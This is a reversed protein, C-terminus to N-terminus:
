GGGARSRKAAEVTAKIQAAKAEDMEVEGTKYDYTPVEASRDWTAMTTALALRRQKLSIGVEDPLSLSGTPCGEVCAPARGERLRDLCMDCKTAVGKAEDWVIMGFPCAMICMKCGICLTGKMAVAGTSQDRYINGTPCAALCAANGCHMCHLSVAPGLSGDVVCLAKGHDPHAELCAVECAYCKDCKSADISVLNRVGAEAQEAMLRQLLDEARRPNVIGCMCPKALEAAAEEVTRAGRAVDKAMRIALNKSMMAHGCMTTIEVLTQGPLLGTDGWTELSYTVTHRHIGAGQCAEDVKDFLGSVIVSVGLDEEALAKVFANIKEQTDFVALTHSTNFAGALIQEPTATFLNGVSQMGLNVCGNALALEAFRRMAPGCTTNNIGKASRMTVVFDKSLGERDGRRHNTHTM